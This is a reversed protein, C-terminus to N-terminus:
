PSCTAPSTSETNQYVWKSPGCQVISLFLELYNTSCTMRGKPGVWIGEILTSSAASSLDGQSASCNVDQGLTFGRVLDPLSGAVLWNNETVALTFGRVWDCLSGVTKWKYETVGLTFGRVPVSLSGAVMSNNETVGLSFGHLGVKLGGISTNVFITWSLQYLMDPFYGLGDRFKICNKIKKVM